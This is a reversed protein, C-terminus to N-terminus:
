QRDGQMFDRVAPHCPTKAIGGGFGLAPKTQIGQAVDIRNARHQNQRKYVDLHTYSVAVLSLPASLGTNLKACRRLGPENSACVRACSLVGPKNIKM